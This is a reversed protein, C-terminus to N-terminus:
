RPVAHWRRRARRARAAASAGTFAGKEHGFLESELLGARCRPATSPSRVTGPPAAPARCPLWSKGRAPRAAYCCRRTRAPLGAEDNRMVQRFAASTGVLEDAGTTDSIMERWASVQSELASVKAQQQAVAKAQEELADLLRGWEAEVHEVRYTAKLARVAPDAEDAARGIVPSRGDGKGVCEREYYFVEQGFVATSHGSAYGTLTWCVPADSPASTCATSNPRMHTTGSPKSRSGAPPRTWTRTCCTRAYWGEWRTCAPDPRGGREPEALRRASQLDACGSLRVCVWFPHPSRRARELGLTEILQKRLLGMADADFLLLRRHQFHITGAAEDVNLLSM